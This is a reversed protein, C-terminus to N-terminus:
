LLSTCLSSSSSNNKQFLLISCYTNSHLFVLLGKSTRPKQQFFYHLASREPCSKQLQNVWKMYGARLMVKQIICFLLFVICSFFRHCYGKESLPYFLSHDLSTKGMLDTERSQVTASGNSILNNLGTTKRLIYCNSSQIQGLTQNRDRVSTLM